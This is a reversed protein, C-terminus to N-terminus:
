LSCRSLKQDSMSSETKIVIKKSQRRAILREDYKINQMIQFGLRKLNQMHRQLEAFLDWWHRIASFLHNGTVYMKKWTQMIFIELVIIIKKVSKIKWSYLQVFPELSKKQRNQKLGNLDITSYSSDSFFRWTVSIIQIFLSIVESSSTSM